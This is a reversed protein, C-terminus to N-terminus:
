YASRRSTFRFSTTATRIVSITSICRREASIDTLQVLRPSGDDAAQAAVTQCRAVAMFVMGIDLEQQRM